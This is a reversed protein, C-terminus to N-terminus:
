RPPAFLADIRPDASIRDRLSDSQGEGILDRRAVLEVWPDGGLLTEIM